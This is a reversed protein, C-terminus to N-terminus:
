MDINENYEVQIPVTITTTLPNVAGQALAKDGDAMPKGAGFIIGALLLSGTNKRIEIPDFYDAVFQMVMVSPSIRFCQNAM